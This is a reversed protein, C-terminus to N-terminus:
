STPVPLDIRRAAMGTGEALTVSTFHDIWHASMNFVITDVLKASQLQHKAIVSGNLCFKLNEPLALRYGNLIIKKEEELVNKTIM